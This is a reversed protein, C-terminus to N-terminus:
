WRAVADFGDVVDDGLVTGPTNALDLVIRTAFVQLVRWTPHAFLPNGTFSFRATRRDIAVDHAGREHVQRFSRPGLRFAGAPGLLRLAGVQLRGLGARTDAVLLPYLALIDGGLLEDVIAETLLLQAFVPVRDREGLVPPIEDPVRRRIRALADPGFRSVLNNGWAGLTDGRVLGVLNRTQDDSWRARAALTEITLPM